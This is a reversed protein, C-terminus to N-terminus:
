KESLKSLRGSQLKVSEEFTLMDLVFESGRERCIEEMGGNYM